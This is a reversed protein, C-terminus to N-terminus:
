IEIRAKMAWRSLRGAQQNEARGLASEVDLRVTLEQWVAKNGIM